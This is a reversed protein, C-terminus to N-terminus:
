LMREILKNINEKHNGLVGKGVGFHKKTDIGGRAPHLRFYPKLNLEEYKKGKQIEKVADKPNIKKTKDIPQGRKEVIKEFTENKVNGYAVYDKVKKIMGMYEPTQPVIVCSYKSRLRLRKLTEEITQRIETKGKIRIIAIM